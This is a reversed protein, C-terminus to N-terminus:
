GAQQETQYTCAARHGRGEMYTLDICCSSDGGQPPGQTPSCGLALNDHENVMLTLACGECRDSVYSELKERVRKWQDRPICITGHLEITKICDPGPIVM